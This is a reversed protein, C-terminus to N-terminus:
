EIRCWPLRPLESAPLFFRLPVRGEVNDGPLQDPDIRWAWRVACRTSSACTPWHKTAASQRRPATGSPPPSRMPKSRTFPRDADVHFIETEPQDPRAPPKTGGDMRPPAARAISFTAQTVPPKWPIPVRIYGESGSILAANDMHLLMGCVFEAVIGAINGTGLIGFRLPRDM